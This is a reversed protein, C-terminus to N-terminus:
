PISTVNEVISNATLFNNLIKIVFGLFYEKIRRM